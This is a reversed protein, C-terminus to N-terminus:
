VEKIGHKKSHCRGCLLVCNNPDTPDGGRARSIIEHKASRWSLWEGCEACKGGQKDWLKMTLEKEKLKQQIMRDSIPKTRTRKM